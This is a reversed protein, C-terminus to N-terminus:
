EAGKILTLAKETKGSTWMLLYLDHIEQQRGCTVVSVQGDGDDPHRM